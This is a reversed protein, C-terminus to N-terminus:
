YVPIPREVWGIDETVWINLAGHNANFFVKIVRYPCQTYFYDGVKPTHDKFYELLSNPIKMPEGCEYVEQRGKNIFTPDCKLTTHCNFMAFSYM